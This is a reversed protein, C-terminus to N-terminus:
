LTTPFLTYNWDGHFENKLITITNFDEDSVEKGTEYTRTDLICTVMLGKGTKTASILGVM